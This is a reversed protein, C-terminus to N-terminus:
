LGVSLSAQAFLCHFLDQLSCNHTIAAQSTNMPSLFPKRTRESKVNLAYINAFRGKGERIIKWERNTQGSAASPLNAPSPASHCCSLSDRGHCRRTKRVRPPFKPHELRHPLQHKRAKQLKIRTKAASLGESTVPQLQRQGQSGQPSTPQGQRPKSLLELHLFSM